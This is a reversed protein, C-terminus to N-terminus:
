LELVKQVKLSLFQLITQITKLTVPFLPTWHCTKCSQMSVISFDFSIFLMWNGQRREVSVIFGNEFNGTVTFTHIDVFVFFFFCKSFEILAVPVFSNMSCQEHISSIILHIPIPLRNRNTYIHEIYQVYEWGM